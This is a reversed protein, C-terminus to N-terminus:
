IGHLTQMDAVIALADALTMGARSVIQVAGVKGLSFQGGLHDAGVYAERGYAGALSGSVAAATNETQDMGVRRVTAGDSYFWHVHKGSPTDGSTTPMEAMDPGHFRIRNPFTFGNSCNINTANGLVAHRLSATNNGNKDLVIAILYPTTRPTTSAVATASGYRTSGTFTLLGGSQTVASGNLVTLQGGVQPDITAPDTDVLASWAFKADSAYWADGTAFAVDPYVTTVGDSAEISITRNTPVGWNIGTGNVIRLENGVIAFNGGPDGNYIRYTLTADPFTYVVSPYSPETAINSALVDALVLPASNPIAGDYAVFKQYRYDDTDDFSEAMNFVGATGNIDVFQNMLRLGSAGHSAYFHGFVDGAIETQTWSARWARLETLNSNGGFYDSGTEYGVLPIDGAVAAQSAMFPLLYEVTDRRARAAMNEDSDYIAVTSASASATFQGQAMWKYGYQGTLVARCEYTTGNTLGTIAAGSTYSAADTGWGSIDRHGIYGAGTGALVEAITPASGSAYVAVRISGGSYRSWVKPTIQGSAIDLCTIWWDGQYYSAVAVADCADRVGAPALRANTGSSGVLQTGLINVVRDAGLVSEFIDWVQKSRIGHNTNVDATKGAEVFKKYIFKQMGPNPIVTSLDGDLRKLRFNDADVVEIGNIYGSKMRGPTTSISFAYNEKTLFCAVQDGTTLGHGPMTWGDIAYNPTAEYRTHFLQQVWVRADNFPEAFNWTENGYELYVYRNPALTDRILTALSTVFADTARVPINIWPDIGLQNALSLIVPYPVQADLQTQPARLLIPNAPAINSWDEMLSKYTLLWDMFRLCKVGLGSLFTIFAPNWIDGALFADRLGPMIIQIPGNVDTVDGKAYLAVINSGSKAFTFETATTWGTLNPTGGWGVGIECGDPNFVTYTGNPLNPIADGEAIKAYFVDAQNAVTLTGWEQSWDSTGSERLWKEANWLVNAFPYYGTFSGIGALGLGLLMEDEPFAFPPLTPTGGSAAATWRSTHGFGRGGWHVAM